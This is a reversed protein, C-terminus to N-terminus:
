GPASRAIRLTLRNEGAARRYRLAACLDRILFWGFGGEPLSARDPGGGPLTGRPPRLGPMPRGRDRLRATIHHRGVRLAVAVPGAGPGAYAHESINNLAEALVLEATGRDAVAVGRAALAQVLCGLAARVQEPDAAALTVRISGASTQPPM